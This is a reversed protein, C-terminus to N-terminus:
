DEQNTHLLAKTSVPFCDMLHKKIAACIFKHEKQSDPKDRLSLIRCWGALSGTLYYETMMAQPLVMRALEPAVGEDILKNYQRVQQDYGSLILSDISSGDISDITEDSSGQKKSEHKLRWGEPMFFEPESAVYRRSVENKSNHVVFTNAVFNHSPHDVEIDYVKEVGVYKISRIQVYKLKLFRRGIKRERVTYKSIDGGILKEKLTNLKNDDKHIEKHCDHCITCLNDFVNMLDPNEYVPVVHHIEPKIANQNCWQCTYHFKIHVDKRNKNLFQVRGDLAVGGKWFNSKEGSRAMRINKLHEETLPSHNRTYGSIGKNWPPKGNVGSLNKLQDFQLNHIKLWKRVTHYSIGFYEAMDTINGFNDKAAKMGDYDRYQGNGLMAAGTLRM